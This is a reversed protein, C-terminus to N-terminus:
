GGQIILRKRGFFWMVNGILFLVIIWVSQKGYSFLIEDAGLQGLYIKVSDFYISAFPTCNVIKLLGEPMFWLPVAMGSFVTVLLNKLVSLSWINIIWFTTMQVILSVGWLVLFGLVVSVLFCLFDIVSSPKEMGVFIVAICLVPFFNMLLNFVINGLSGAFLNLRYDIPKLFDITITGDSVKRQVAFDDFAFASSLGISIIFNTVVMGYSINNVSGEGAYLARWIACTIFLQLCTSLLGLIYNMRYVTNSKFSQKFYAGFVSM